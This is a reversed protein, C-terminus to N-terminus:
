DGDAEQHEKSAEAEKGRGVPTSQHLCHEEDKNEHSDKPAESRRAEEAHELAVSPSGVRQPSGHQKGADGEGNEKDEINENPALLRRSSDGKASEKGEEEHPEADRSWQREHTGKKAVALLRNLVGGPDVLNRALNGRLWPKDVKPDVEEHAPEEGEACHKDLDKVHEGGNPQMLEVVEKSKEEEDEDDEPERACLNSNDHAVKLQATLVIVPPPTGVEGRARGGKVKEPVCGVIEERPHVDGLRHLNCGVENEKPVHCDKGVAEKDEGAEHTEDRAEEEHAGNVGRDLDILAHPTPPHPTREGGGKQSRPVSCVSERKMMKEQSAM